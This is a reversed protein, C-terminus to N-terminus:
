LINLIGTSFRQSFTRLSALKDASSFQVKSSTRLSIGESESSDSEDDFDSAFSSKKSM